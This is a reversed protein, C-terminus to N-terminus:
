YDKNINRMTEVNAGCGDVSLPINAGQDTKCVQVTYYILASEREQCELGLELM